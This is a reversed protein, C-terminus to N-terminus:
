CRFVIEFMVHGFCVFGQGVALNAKKYNNM